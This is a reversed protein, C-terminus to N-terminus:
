KKGYLKSIIYEAVHPKYGMELMVKRLQEPTYKSKTPELASLAREITKLDSETLEEGGAETPKLTQTQQATGVEKVDSAQKEPVPVYPKTEIHVEEEKPLPKLAPSVPEVDAFLEKKYEDTKRIWTVPEPKSRKLTSEGEKSARIKARVALFVVLIFILSLIVLLIWFLNMPSIPIEGGLITVSNKDFASPGTPSPSVRAVATKTPTTATTDLVYTITIEPYSIKNPNEIVYYNGDKSSALPSISIIKGEVLIKMAKVPEKPRMIRSVIKNDKKETKVFFEKTGMSSLADNIIKLDNETWKAFYNIDFNNNDKCVFKCEIKSMMVKYSEILKRVAEKSDENVDPLQVLTEMVGIYGNLIKRYETTCDRNWAEILNTIDQDNTDFTIKGYQATKTILSGDAMFEYVQEYSGSATFPTQSFTFQLLFMLLLLYCTVVCFVRSKRSKIGLMM